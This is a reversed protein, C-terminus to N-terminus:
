RALTPFSIHTVRPEGPARQLPPVARPPHAPGVRARTHTHTHTHTIKHTQFHAHMYPAPNQTAVSCSMETSASWGVRGSKWIDWLDLKEYAQLTKLCCCFSNFNCLNCRRAIWGHSSSLVSDHVHVVYSVCVCECVCVCKCVCM